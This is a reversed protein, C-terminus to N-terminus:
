KKYDKLIKGVDEFLTIHNLFIDWYFNYYKLVHVLSNIKYLKLLKQIFLLRNHSVAKKVEEFNFGFEKSFQNLLFSLSIKYNINYEYM